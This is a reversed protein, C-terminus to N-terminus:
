AAEDGDGFGVLVAGEAKAIPHGRLLRDPGKYEPDLNRTSDYNYLQCARLYGGHLSKAQSEPPVAVEVDLLDGKRAGAPVLAGGGGRGPPRTPRRPSKRSSHPKLPRVM